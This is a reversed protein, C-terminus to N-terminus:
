SIWYGRLFLCTALGLSIFLLVFFTVKFANTKKNLLHALLIFGPFLVLVYRPLSSFSGSLTPILYGLLLYIAYSTRLKWFSFISLFLFLLSVFLELFTVFVVPLYSYNLVPIIKFFYRYFVQPLLVFTSSRQAGFITVTNLFNLPDGTKTYLYYMYVVIGMPVLLVGISKLFTKKKSKLYEWGFAPLLAVGIIRTATSIAGTIGGWIWEDKRIFYFSWVTLALFVSETYYSGFYYSTPFFLFLLISLRAVKKDFDMRALKWIGVLAILFSVNSTILGSAALVSISNGVIRGVLNCLIPFVPFFFYTLPQYGMQAIALYHEGDFNVWGWLGPTKLYNQMGGGLFNNQVPIYKIALYLFAFLTVRWILFSFFIFLLDSKKM